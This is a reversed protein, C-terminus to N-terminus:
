ENRKVTRDTIVRSKEKRSSDRRESADLTQGDRKGDEPM